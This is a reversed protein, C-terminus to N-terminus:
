TTKKNIANIAKEFKPLLKPALEKLIKYGVEQWDDGIVIQAQQAHLDPPFNKEFLLIVDDELNGFISELDDM